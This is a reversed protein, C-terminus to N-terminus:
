FYTEYFQMLERKNTIKTVRTKWSKHRLCIKGDYTWREWELPLRRVERFLQQRTATLNEDIFIHRLGNLNRLRHRNFYVYDRVDHSVFKVLIIPPNRRMNGNRRGFNRHTRDIDSPSVNLGMKHFIDLVIQNTNENPHYQAQAVGLINRRTYQQQADLAEATDDRFCKLEESFRGIDSKLSHVSEETTSKLAKLDPLEQINSSNEEKKLLEDHLLKIRKKVEAFKDELDIGDEACKYKMSSIQKQNTEAKRKTVTLKNSLSQVEKQLSAIQKQCSKVKEVLRKEHKFVFDTGDDNDPVLNGAITELDMSTFEHSPNTKFLELIAPKIKKKLNRALFVLLKDCLLEYESM